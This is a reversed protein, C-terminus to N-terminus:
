SSAAETPNTAMMRDLIAKHFTEFMNALKLYKFFEEWNSLNMLKLCSLDCAIKLSFITRICPLMGSKYTIEFKFGVTGELNRDCICRQCYIESSKHWLNLRGSRRNTDVKAAKWWYDFMSKCLPRLTEFDFKMM